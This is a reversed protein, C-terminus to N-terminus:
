LHVIDPVKTLSHIGLLPSIDASVTLYGDYKSRNPVVLEGLRFLGVIGLLMIVIFVVMGSLYLDDDDPHLGSQVILITAIAFTVPQKRTRAGSSLETAM